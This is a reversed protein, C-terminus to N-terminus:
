RGRRASRAAKAVSREDSLRGIHLTLGLAVDFRIRPEWEDDLEDAIEPDLTTAVADGLAMLLGLDARPAVHMEVGSALFLVHEAYLYSEGYWNDLDKRQVGYVLGFWSRAAGSPSLPWDFLANSRLGVHWDTPWSAHFRLGVVARAGDAGTDGLLFTPGVEFQVSEPLPMWWAMTADVHVWPRIRVSVSWELPGPFFGGGATWPGNVLLRLHVPGAVPDPPALDSM